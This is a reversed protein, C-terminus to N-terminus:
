RNFSSRRVAFTSPDLEVSLEPLAGPTQGRQGPPREIPRADFFSVFVAEHQVGDHITVDPSVASRYRSLDLGRRRAEPEAAAVAERERVEPPRAPEFGLLRCTYTVKDRNRKSRAREVEKGEVRFLVRDGPWIQRCALLDKPWVMEVREGPLPRPRPSLPWRASYSHGEQLVGAYPEVDSMKTVEQPSAPGPTSLALAAALVALLAPRRRAM